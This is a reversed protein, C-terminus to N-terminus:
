HDPRTYIFKEDPMQGGIADPNFTLFVKLNGQIESRIEDAYRFDLRCRPISLTAISATPLIKHYAIRGAAETPHANVFVTSRKWAEGISSLEKWHERAFDARVMIATQPLAPNGPVAAAWEHDLDMIMRILPNTAQALSFLPESLIALSSQGAIMANSLDIHNPFTYDLRIDQDPILQNEQLLFRFLVDPTAGKGMLHVTKGKLDAWHQVTSDTGTLYLTGWVPVALLQYDAGKNYMIVAMNLPLVAIEPKDVLMRSRVQMPEDIIEIALPKGTVTAASDILNIMGMASPGKLVLIRIGSNGERGTHCGAVVLTLLLLIGARILGQKKEM